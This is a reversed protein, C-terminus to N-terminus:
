VNDCAVNSSESCIEFHVGDSVVGAARAFTVNQGTNNVGIKKTELIGPAVTRTTKTTGDELEIVAVVEAIEGATLRATVTANGTSANNVCTTAEVNVSICKARLDTQVGTRDFAPKLFGWVLAVAALALLVILVTAVLNSLGRKDM